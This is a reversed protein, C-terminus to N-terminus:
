IHAHYNWMNSQNTSPEKDKYMFVFKETSFDLPIRM